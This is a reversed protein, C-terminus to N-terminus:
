AQGAAPRATGKARGQSAGFLSNFGSFSNLGAIAPLADMASAAQLVADSDVLHSSCDLLEAQMEMAAASLEQWYTTAGEFQSRMFESQITLLDLPQRPAKFNEAAKSYRAVAGQVALENIKRVAEFGRRLIDASETAVALQQRGAGAPASWAASPAPAPRAAPAHTKKTSM